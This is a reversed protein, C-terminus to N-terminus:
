NVDYVFVTDQAFGKTGTPTFGTTAFTGITGTLFTMTGTTVTAFGAQTSGNNFISSMVTTVGGIAPQIASPLGTLTMGTANSTYTVLGIRVTVSTGVKTYKCSVTPTTTGGTALTGTFTGTTGASTSVAVGNIFVGTANLTGLGQTGGTPSGIQVGGDGSVLFYNLTNAANNILFSQDSSNTGAVINVGFSSSATNPANIVLARAGAVANATFAVGSSPAAITVNGAAAITLRTSSNTFLQLSAAGDSGVAMGDTSQSSVSWAGALVNQYGAILTNSASTSGLALVNNGNIGNVSLPTGSTPSAITVAGSAAITLRVLANTFVSLATAATTGFALANASAIESAGALLFTGFAINIGSADISRTGNGTQPNVTLSTGSSPTPIIVNQPFSLTVAGTAASAAIQNATGTISLVGTNSITIAGVSATLGIGSGATLSLVVGTSDAKSAIATSINGFEVDYAAGFITKAPNNVPLTDKPTFFTTQSYNSM